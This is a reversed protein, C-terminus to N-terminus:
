FSHILISMIGFTNRATIHYFTLAVYGLVPGSLATPLADSVLALSGSNSERDPWM